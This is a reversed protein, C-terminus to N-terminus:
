NEIVITVAAATPTCSDTLVVSEIYGWSPNQDTLESHLLGSVVSGNVPNIIELYVAIEGKWICNANCPCISSSIERVVLLRDDCLLFSKGEEVNFAQRPPCENDSCATIFVACLVTMISISIRLRAKM